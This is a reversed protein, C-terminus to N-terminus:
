KREQTTAQDICIADVWLQPTKSAHTAELRFAELFDWLNSFVEFRAGDIEIV